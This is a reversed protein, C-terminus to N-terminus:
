QKQEGEVGKGQPSSDTLLPGHGFLANGSLDAEKPMASGRPIALSPEEAPTVTVEILAAGRVEFDGRALDSLEGRLRHDGGGGPSNLLRQRRQDPEAAEALNGVVDFGVCPLHVEANEVPARAGLDRRAGVGVREVLPEAGLEPAGGGRAPFGEIRSGPAGCPYEGPEGGPPRQEDRVPVEELDEEGGADIATSGFVHPRLM